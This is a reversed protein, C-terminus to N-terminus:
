TQTSAKQAAVAAAVAADLQAKAEAEAAKERAARNAADQERLRLGTQHALRVVDVIDTGPARTPDLFEEEETFPTIDPAFRAERVANLFIGAQEMDRVQQEPPIYSQETKTVKADSVEPTGIIPINVADFVHVDKTVEGTYINVADM